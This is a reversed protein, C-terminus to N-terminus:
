LATIIANLRVEGDQNVDVARIIEECEKEDLGSM